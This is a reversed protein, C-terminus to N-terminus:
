ETTSSSLVESLLRALGRNVIDIGIRRPARVAMALLHLFKPEDHSLLAYDYRGLGLKLAMWPVSLLGRLSRVHKYSVPIARVGKREKRLDRRDLPQM